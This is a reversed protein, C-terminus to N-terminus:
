EAVFNIGLSVFGGLVDDTCDFDSGELWICVYCYMIDGKALTNDRVFVQEASAFPVAPFFGAAFAESTNDNMEAEYAVIDFDESDSGMPYAVYEIYGQEPTRRANIALNALRPNNSLASYIQVDTRYPDSEDGEVEEYAPNRFSEGWMVRVANQLGIDDNALSMEYNIKVDQDGNNRLMFMFRIFNEGNGTGIVPEDAQLLEIVEERLNLQERGYVRNYSVDWINTPGQANLFPSWMNNDMSLSISKDRNASSATIRVNNQEIFLLMIYVVSTVILAFVLMFLMAQKLKRRIEERKVRKNTTISNEWERRMKATQRPPGEGEAAYDSDSYDGEPDGEDDSYGEEAGAEDDSYEAPDDEAYEEYSDDSGDYEPATNETDDIM